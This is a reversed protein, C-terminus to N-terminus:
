DTDGTLYEFMSVKGECSGLLDPFLVELLHEQDTVKADAFIPCLFLLSKRGLRTDLSRPVVETDTPRTNNAIERLLAEPDYDLVVGFVVEAGGSDWIGFPGGQAPDKFKMLEQLAQLAQVAKAFSPTNPYHRCVIEYNRYALNLRGLFQWNDARQLYAKAEAQRAAEQRPPFEARVPLCPSNVNDEADVMDFGTLGLRSQTPSKQVLDAKSNKPLAAWSTQRGKGRIERLLSEPDYDLVSLAFSGFGRDDRGVKSFILDLQEARKRDLLRGNKKLQGLEELQQLAIAFSPTDAYYRCIIEYIRYAVNLRGQSRSFEARQLFAAAKAWHAAQIQGLLNARARSAPMTLLIVGLGLIAVSGFFMRKGSLTGAAM